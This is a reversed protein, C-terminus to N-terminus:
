WDAEVEFDGTGEIEFVLKYANVRTPYEAIEVRGDGRLLRVTASPNDRRPLDRSFVARGIDVRKGQLTVRAREEVRGTWVAGRQPLRTKPLNTAFGGRETDWFFELAYRGSDAIRVVLTYDNELSPQQVIAAQGRGERVRLRVRQRSDPLPSAFKYRQGTVPSDAQLRNARVSLTCAGEVTGEWVLQPATQAAAVLCAAAAIILRGSRGM